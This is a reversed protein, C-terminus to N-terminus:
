ARGARPAVTVWYRTRYRVDVNVGQALNALARDTDGLPFVGTVRLDGLAPDARLLGSRYRSLEAIFDIVRMHEAVLTGRTWSETADPLPQAAEIATDSFCARLGAGLRRAPGHRPVIDVEGRYVAVEALGGGGDGRVSYHADETRVAGAACEILFPRRWPAPDAATAAHVRGARLLVAREAQSYRVDVASRTDLVLRTRDPLVVDRIEGTGTAYDATVLQWADSRRVTYATGGALLALVGARLVARRAARSPPAELLVRRAARRPLGVLQEELARLRQWAREHDAHAARWAACAARDEASAEGSWLRAMWLSARQVIGPDIPADDRASTNMM